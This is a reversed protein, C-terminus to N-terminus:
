QKIFKQTSLLQRKNNLIRIAYVNPTFASTNVKLEQIGAAGAYRREYVIRGQMDAIQIIASADQISNMRIRLESSVPNPYILLSAGNPNIFVSIVKSYNIAGDKNVQKIRYYNNGTFPSNDIQQYPPYGKVNAITTFQVGDKSRQVEFYDQLENTTVEWDLITKNDNTLTGFFNENVAPANIPTTSSKIVKLEDIYFGDNVEFDFGSTNADSTFQFRLRLASTGNYANLDVLERTWYEQIGTLSPKGNITSGDLTGSEQITTKGCVPVWTNGNTSVQIQLKDRFNESRYRTWFSLFSATAGTLNLTNKYTAIRTSSATYNGTPSETLAKSGLYASATSYNWGGSVTWNTTVSAGEMNDYLLQTPNYFKTITDYYVQGATEIRWAFKIRKGNALSPPLSYSIGATYSDNYNAINTTISPGTSDINELPIATITVPQDELGLRKLSFNLNGTLATLAVDSGDLLDVYSGAVFALQLNQYTMGKCLSIIQSAPPWFSGYTGGTGGGAGGEGTLGFSKIKTGAGIDGMLMWDKFGGAVEYGVSQYSNGARMGNYKGMLASTNNYFLSDSINIGPTNSFNNLSSRGFPLSYYPGYSHQDIAAVIQHTTVFNKIAQTEPESFANPGYYTDSSATASGCSTSSGQIPASCNGWNVGWNRNLDVGYTTGSILRRNKRWGGGVGTTTRNYEWGDPNTCPVIFFERNDVLAQIKNDTAYNECLYQMFFIMSSGGIAERAHQIAIYLLEPEGTEDSLVNDSIKVGWITRLQASVGLNIKQALNPYASVLSDIAVEMQAYSYYGGFGPQVLFASPTNIITSVSKCNQELAVRNPEAEITGAKVAAYYKENLTQVQAAVDEVLMQFRIGSKKLNILSSPELETEIFGNVPMYHDIQLLGILYSLQEKTKPMPIKVRSLKNQAYASAIMSLLMLFALLPKKM